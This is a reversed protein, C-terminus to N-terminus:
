QTGRLAYFRLSAIKVCNILLKSIAEASREKIGKLTDCHRTKSLNILTVTVKVVRILTVTVM